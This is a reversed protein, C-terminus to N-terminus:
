KNTKNEYIWFNMNSKSNASYDVNKKSSPLRESGYKPLTDTAEKISDQPVKGTSVKYKNPNFKIKPAKYKEEALLITSTSFFVM